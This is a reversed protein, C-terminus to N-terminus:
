ETPMSSAILSKTIGLLRERWIAAQPFLQRLERVDLLRVDDVFADCGQQTPRVLLGWVTFNRLLRKQISPPFYHILPTMLHPEMPFWRYPTQVYYHRGVRMAERAFAKRSAQDGVHEIVSNSFVVDFAGDQFPLQRADAVVWDFARNREKPAELNVITVRPRSDFFSWYYEYGGLDLLRTEATLQFSRWFRQFRKRRFYRGFPRHLDPITM